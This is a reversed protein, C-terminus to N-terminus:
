IKGFNFIYDAAQVAGGWVRPNVYDGIFVDRKGIYVGNQFDKLQKFVANNSKHYAFIVWLM